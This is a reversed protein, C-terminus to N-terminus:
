ALAKEVIFDLVAEEIMQAQIGQFLQRGQDSQILQNPDQGSMYAQYFFRNRAEQDDATIKEEERIREILYYLQLRNRIEQTYKEKKEDDSLDSDDGRQTAQDNRYQLERELLEEPVDFEVLEATQKIVEDRYDVQIGTQKEQTLEDLVKAEFDEVTKVDEGYRKFFEENMEPLEQKKVEKVTVTFEAAQGKLKDAHYDEPFTVPFTKEEGATMGPLVEEFEPLFQKSGVVYPHNQASGGDFLEGDLKGAFDMVVQDNEEVPGEKPTYQAAESLHLKIRDAKEEDTVSVEQKELKYDSYAPLDYEPQIEFTVSFQLPAKKEIKLDGFQPQTAPKLSNQDLAKQYYEPILTDLAEKEMYESFRKEMLAKPFKGNRFGNVRVKSKLDQYVKNYAGTVMENPVTVDMKRKLKGLNEVVAEM